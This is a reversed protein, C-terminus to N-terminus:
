TGINGDFLRAQNVLLPGQSELTLLGGVLEGYVVGSQCPCETTTANAAFSSGALFRSNGVEAAFGSVQAGL